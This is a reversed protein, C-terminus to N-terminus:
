PGSRARWRTGDPGTLIFALREEFFREWDEPTRSARMVTEVDEMWEFWSGPDATSGEDILYMGSILIAVDESQTNNYYRQLFLLMAAYAQHITLMEM